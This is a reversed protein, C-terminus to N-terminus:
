KGVVVHIPEVKIANETITEKCTIEISTPLQGGYRFEHTVVNVVGSFEHHIMEQPLPHIRVRAPAASQDMPHNETVVVSTAGGGLPRTEIEFTVGPLKAIEFQPPRSPDNVLGTWNPRADDERFKFWMQIRADDATAPWDKALFRFVPVPRDPVFDPDAFYYVRQADVGEPRIEAWVHKPRPTFTTEDAHQVSVYFEVDKGRRRPLLAHVDYSAGGRPELCTQEARFADGKDYREPRYPPYILRDSRPDYWLLLSEGGEIQVTATPARDVDPIAVNYSTSGPTLEPLPWTEGLVRRKKGSASAGPGDVQYEVLKLAKRLAEILTAINDAQTYSGGTKTALRELDAALGLDLGIIDIAVDRAKGANERAEIVEDATTPDLGTTRKLFNSQNNLGDTIVIVRKTEGAPLHAFDGRDFVTKLALYLPTQGCPQLKPFLDVIEKHCAKDLKRLPTMLEVDLDPNLDAQAGPIRFVLNPNNNALYRAQRGYTRLGVEYRNAALLSDLVARLAGTATQMRNNEGMTASCDFIFMIHGTKEGEGEVTISAHPPNQPPVEVRTVWPPWFIRFRDQYSHGRYFCMANLDVGSTASKLDKVPIRYKVESASGENPAPLKSRRITFQGSEDQVPLLVPESQAENSRSVFAAAAGAPVDPHWDVRLQHRVSDDTRLSTANDARITTAKVALRRRALLDEVDMTDHLFRRPTKDLARASVLYSDAALAFYPTTEFPDGSGWYDELARWTQWIMAFHLDILRLRHAPDMETQEWTRATLLPAAARVLRDAESTGARTNAPTETALKLRDKTIGDLRNLTDLLEALLRRVEGGQYALWDASSATSNLGLGTAEREGTLLDMERRDLIALAPHHEWAALLERYEAHRDRSARVLDEPLGPQSDDGAAQEIAVLSGQSGLIDMYKERLRIRVEASLLPTRLLQGIRLLTPRDKGAGEEVYDCYKQYDDKLEGHLRDVDGAAEILGAPPQYAHEVLCRDLEASLSHSAAILRMLRDGLGAIDIGPAKINEQSSLSTIWRALYPLEAWAADHVAYYGGVEEARKLVWPYTDGAAQQNLLGEYITRAESLAEPSGIILLDEAQRRKADCAEVLPHLWLHLRFDEPAAAQEAMQRAVIARPVIQEISPGDASDAAQWDLSDHLLKLFQVEVVDPMPESIAAQDAAVTVQQRPTSAAVYDLVERLRDPPVQPLGALWRTGVDAAVLYSPPPAPPEGEKPAPRGGAAEWTALITNTLAEDLPMHLQKALPLSLGLVDKPLQLRGVSDLQKRIANLTDNLESQYANGSWLLEEARLLTHQVEALGLPDNRRLSRSALVLDYQRWLENIQHQGSRLEGLRAPQSDAPADGDADDKAIEAYVIGFDDREDVEPILMPQQVSARHNQSWLGVRQRVYRYLELLTVVNDDYRAEGGLGKTVYFGFPTADIEPAAWVTEGPGAANMVYLGPIEAETVSASLCEAFGNYLLGLNWREGIRGSDLILVLKHNRNSPQNQHEKVVNLLSEFTLWTDSRLPDADSLLLCPRNKEDVVGHASLYVIVTDKGPGGPTVESLQKKLHELCESSSVSDGLEDGQLYFNDNSGDVRRLRQLDEAAYGNPPISWDHQWSDYKWISLAVIPTQKPVFFLIYLLVAILALAALSLAVVRMQHYFAASQVPNVRRDHWNSSRERAVPERRASPSRGKKRWDPRTSRDM